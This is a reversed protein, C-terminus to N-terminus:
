PGPTSMAFHKVICNKQKTFNRALAAGRSNVGICGILIQDNAGAINAYSKASFGPLVGGFSLMATGAVAKKIFSRRTTM